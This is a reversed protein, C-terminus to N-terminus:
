PCKMVSCIIYISVCPAYTPAPLWVLMFDAVLAMAINAFVFDLQSSFSDGRKAYEATTKTCVGIGVEIAVKLLFSPDAMLRERFGRCRINTYQNISDTKM